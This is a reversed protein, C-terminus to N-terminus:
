NRISDYSYLIHVFSVTINSVDHINWAVFMLIWCSGFKKRFFVCSNWRFLTKLIFKKKNFIESGLYSKSLHMKPYLFTGSILFLQRYEYGLTWDCMRSAFTRILFEFFLDWKYEVSCVFVWYNVFHFSNFVTHFYLLFWSLIVILEYCIRYTHFHRMQKSTVTKFCLLVLLPVLKKTTQFCFIMISICRLSFKFALKHTNTHMHCFNWESIINYICFHVFYFRINKVKKYEWVTCIYGFGHTTWEYMYIYSMFQIVVFICSFGCM